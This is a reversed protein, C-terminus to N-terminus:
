VRSLFTYSRRKTIRVLERIWSINKYALTILIPYVLVCPFSVMKMHCHHNLMSRIFNNFSNSQCWSIAENCRVTYNKVTPPFSDLSEGMCGWDLVPSMSCLEKGTYEQVIFDIKKFCSFGELVFASKSDSGHVQKRLKENPLNRYFKKDIPFYYNSYKSALYNTNRSM